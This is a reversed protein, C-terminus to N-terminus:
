IEIKLGYPYYFTYNRIMDTFQDNNSLVNSVYQADPQQINDRGFWDVYHFIDDQTGVVPGNLIEKTFVIKEKVM